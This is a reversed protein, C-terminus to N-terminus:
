HDSESSDVLTELEAVLRPDLRAGAEAKVHAIATEQAGTTDLEVVFAFIIALVRSEIPISEGALGQPTGRGDWREDLRRLIPEVDRGYLMEVAFHEAIQVLPLM